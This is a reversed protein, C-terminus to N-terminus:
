KHVICITLFCILDNQLVFQLMNSYFLQLWTLVGADVKRGVLCLGMVDQNLMNLFKLYDSFELGILLIAIM